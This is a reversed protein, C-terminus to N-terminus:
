ITYFTNFLLQYFNCLMEYHRSCRLMGLITHYLFNENEFGLKLEKVFHKGPLFNTSSIETIDSKFYM